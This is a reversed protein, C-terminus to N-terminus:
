KKIWKAKLIPEQGSIATVIIDSNIVAMEYNSNCPIFKVNPYFKLM